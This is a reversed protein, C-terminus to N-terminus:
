DHVATDPPRYFRYHSARVGSVVVREYQAAWGPRYHKGRVGPTQDLGGSTDFGAVAEGERPMARPSYFHTAGGSRDPLEGRLLQEALHRVSDTPSAHHAYADWVDRVRTTSSREMRNLVTYGVAIREMRNAVGPAAESMLIHALDAVNQSTALPLPARQVTPVVPSIPRPAILSRGPLVAPHSGFRALLLSLLLVLGISLLAVVLQWRGGSPDRRRPPSAPQPVAVGPLRAQALRRRLSRGRQSPERPMAVEM